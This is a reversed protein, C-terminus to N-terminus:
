RRNHHVAANWFLSWVKKKTKANQTTEIFLHHIMRITNHKKKNSTKLKQHLISIGSQIHINFCQRQAPFFRLQQCVMGSLCDDVCEFFFHEHGRSSAIFLRNGRRFYSCVATIFLSPVAFVIAASSLYYYCAHADITTAFNIPGFINSVVLRMVWVFINSRVKPQVTWQMWNLATFIEQIFNITTAANVLCITVWPGANEILIQKKESTETKINFWRIGRQRITMESHWVILQM